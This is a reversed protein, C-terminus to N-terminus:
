STTLCAEYSAGSPMHRGASRLGFGHQLVDGYRHWIDQLKQQTSWNGVHKEAQCRFAALTTDMRAYSSAAFSISTHRLSWDSHAQRWLEDIDCLVVDQVSRVESSLIGNAHLQAVWMNLPLSEIVKLLKRFPLAVAFKDQWRVVDDRSLMVADQVISVEEM